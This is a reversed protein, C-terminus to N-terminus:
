TREYRWEGRDLYLRHRAGPENANLTEYGADGEWLIVQCTATSTVRSAFRAIPASAIDAAAAAHSAFSSLTLLTLWTPPMVAIRGLRHEKLAASPSIWQHDVIEGGDVRIEVHPEVPGFLMWTLFRKPAEPGPTWHALPQLTAGDVAIGAEEATERVAARRAAAIGFLDGGDVGEADAPEVRGGPFVWADAAFSITAARKLMLVELGNVGDRALVATAAPIDPQRAAGEPTRQQWASPIYPGAETM